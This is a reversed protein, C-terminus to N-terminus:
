IDAPGARSRSKPVFEGLAGVAQESAERVSSVISKLVRKLHFAPSILHFLYSKM